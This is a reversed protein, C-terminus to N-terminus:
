SIVPFVEVKGLCLSIISLEMVWVVSFTVGQNQTFDAKSHSSPTM